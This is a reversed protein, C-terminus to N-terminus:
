KLKAEHLQLQFDLPVDLLTYVSFNGHSDPNGVQCRFHRESLEFGKFDHFLLPELTWDGNREVADDIADQTIVRNYEKQDAISNLVNLDNSTISFKRRLLPKYIESLQNRLQVEHALEENTLKKRKM